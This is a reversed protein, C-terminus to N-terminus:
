RWTWSATVGAGSLRVLRVDSPVGEVDVRGDRIGVSVLGQGIPIRDLRLSGMAAPLEPDIRIDGRPLCPELRLLSRVIQLPAAAAWAQPSCSTPYSVPAPVDDRTLGSMLEPLRGDSHVAADLLGLILRHAEALFGYRVLGAVCLATDHPWVSGRHYSNPDYSAMSSALTRVGWGSFMEPSLLHAAVSPAKDDDVIGTWLCHGMNSALADVPRKRGDLALAYYGHDPLWFDRNFAHKLEVARERYRNASAADGLEEALDARALYAAYVYGQVECLAIPPEALRGDAFPVGDWSDKWGQNVLGRATARQYEVYGDGDRDGYRAIWEMARDAQPLLRHVADADVGWRRLEGLLMVFLPTADVTGFYFEADGM